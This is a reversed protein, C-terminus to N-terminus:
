LSFQDGRAPIDVDWGLDAVIRAKLAAQAPPEGHVIFTKKPPSKFGKLWRMIEGQDAHASLSGLTQTEARNEIEQGFIRVSPEGDQIRRGLTGEGQYGSFLVLTNPDSLRHILHHVIRGGNAMGSGAIIMLPGKTSNLAKSAERDRIFKLGEPAFPDHHSAVAALMEEDLEDQSRAYVATVSTAMPSDIYIPVRPVQNEWQLKSIYYLLEQTRGIAFSPVLVPRGGRWANQLVSALRAMPDEQAHFRDGYTSEIVLYEANEIMTPDKIIPTNFRGLDGSMLLREGNEFYIEAFASGLIHGAPLFQWTAGGPLPHPTHYEVAHFQKLCAYADRETYLPLIPEQRSKHKKHQYADEEQLRGSDPLSIKALDITACTAYIPGAYGERCLKPLLGIHDIHAHTIVVASLRQPDFPFPEWNRARLEKSGQYMGCDVLVKRGNLDLIHLSGTVTQAAGDFTISQPM